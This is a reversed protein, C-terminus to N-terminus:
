SKDDENVINTINQEIFQSQTGSEIEIVAESGEKISFSDNTTDLNLNEKLNVDGLKSRSHQWGESDSTESEIGSKVNNDYFGELESMAPNEGLGLSILLM